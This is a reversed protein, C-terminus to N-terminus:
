DGDGGGALRYRLMVDRVQRVQYAKASSGKPQLNLIEPIGEKTFIHHSGKTREDFGLSRLLSCLGLFPVNRDATGRLVQDLIKKQAVMIEAALGRSRPGSAHLGVFESELGRTGTRGQWYLEWVRSATARALRGSVPLLNCPSPQGPRQSSDTLREVGFPDGGSALWDALPGEGEVVPRAGTARSLQFPLV